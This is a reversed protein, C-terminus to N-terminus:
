RDIIYPYTKQKFVVGMDISVFDNYNLSCCYNIWLVNPLAMEAVLRLISSVVDGFFTGVCLYLLHARTSHHLIM